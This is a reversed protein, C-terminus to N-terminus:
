TCTFEKGSMRTAGVRSRTQMRAGNRPKSNKIVLCISLQQRISVAEKHIMRGLVHIILPIKGVRDFNNVSPILASTPLTRTPLRKGYHWLGALSELHFIPVLLSPGSYNQITEPNPELHFGGKNPLQIPPLYQCGTGRQPNYVDTVPHPDRHFCRAKMLLLYYTPLHCRELTQALSLSFLGPSNTEAGDRKFDWCM